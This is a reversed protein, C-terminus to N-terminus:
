GIGRTSTPWNMTPKASRRLDHIIGTFIIRDNLIVESVALRVPILEGSKHKALVERGIGIIKAQRTHLIVSWTVMTSVPM